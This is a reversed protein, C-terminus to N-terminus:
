EDEGETWSKLALSLNSATNNDLDFITFRNGERIRVRLVKAGNEYAVNQLAIHKGYPAEMTTIDTVKEDIM